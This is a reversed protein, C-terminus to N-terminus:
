GKLLAYRLTEGLAHERSRARLLSAAAHLEAIQDGHTAQGELEVLRETIEERLAHFRHPALVARDFVRPRVAALILADFTDAQLMARLQAEMAADIPQLRSDDPLRTTTPDVAAAVSSLGVRPQFAEPLDLSM